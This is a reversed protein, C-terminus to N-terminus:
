ALPTVKIYSILVAVAIKCGHSMLRCGDKPPSLSWWSIQTCVCSDKMLLPGSLRTIAELDTLGPASCLAPHRKKPPAPGPKTLLRPEKSSAPEAVKCGTIVPLDKVQGLKLWVGQRGLVPVGTGVEGPPLSWVPSAPFVQEDYLSRATGTRRCFGVWRGMRCFGM